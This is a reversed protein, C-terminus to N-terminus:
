DFSHFGINFDEENVILPSIGLFGGKSSVGRINPSIRIECLIKTLNSWIQCFLSTVFFKRAERALFNQTDISEFQKIELPLIMLSHFKRGRAFRAFFNRWKRANRADDSPRDPFAGVKVALFGGKYKASKSCLPNELHIEGSVGLM